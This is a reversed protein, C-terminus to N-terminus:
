KIRIKLANDKYEPEATTPTQLLIELRTMFPSEIQYPVIETIGAKDSIMKMNFAGTNVDLLEVVVKYPDEPRYMTYSFPKSVKITVSYDQIDIGTIVPTGEPQTTEKASGTTACGYCAFLLSCLIISYLLISKSYQWKNKARQKSKAKRKKEKIILKM